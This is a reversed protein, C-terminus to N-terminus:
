GGSHTGATGNHDKGIPLVVTFTSGRGAASEVQIEGGHDRMIGYSVALGLGTGKGTPKTTFFPDFIRRLHDDPIGVGTDCFAVSAMHPTRLGTTVTLDGGQPMADIANNLINLFVQELRDPDARVLPLDPAHCRRLRIGATRCQPAVLALSQEVVHDLHVERVELRSPRSFALLGRVIESIRRAQRRMVNLDEIWEAPAGQQGAVVQLYDARALVIGAPNNIEHAVGDVLEGVSALKAAQLLQQQTQDIEKYQRQITRNADRVTWSILMGSLLVLLTFATFITRVQRGLAADITRLSEDLEIRGVPRQNHYIPLTHLTAIREGRSFRVGAVLPAAKDGDRLAVYDVSGDAQISMEMRQGELFLRVTRLEPIKGFESVIKRTIESSGLIEEPSRGQQRFHLVHGRLFESLDQLHLEEFELLQRREAHTAALVLSTAVLIFILNLRVFIQVHLSQTRKEILLAFLVLGALMLITEASWLYSRAPESGVWAARLLRCAMSALIAAVPSIAFWGHRRKRGVYLFVALALLMVNLVVARAEGLRVMAPLVLWRGTWVGPHYAPVLFALGVTELAGVLIHLGPFHVTAEPRSIELYADFTDLLLHGSLLFFAVALWRFDPLTDRRGLGRWLAVCLVIFLLGALLLQFLALILVNELSASFM